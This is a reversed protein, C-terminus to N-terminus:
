IIYCVIAFVLKTNMRWSSCVELIGMLNDEWLPTYTDTAQHGNVDELLAKAM